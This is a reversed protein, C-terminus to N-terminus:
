LDYKLEPFLRLLVIHADQPTSLGHLCRGRESREVHDADVVEDIDTM